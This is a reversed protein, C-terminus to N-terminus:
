VGASVCEGGGSGIPFGLVKLLEYTRGLAGGKHPSVSGSTKQFSLGAAGPPSGEAGGAVGM